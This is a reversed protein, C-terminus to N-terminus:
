SGKSLFANESITVSRVEGSLIKDNLINLNFFNFTTNNQIMINIDASKDNSLNEYDYSIVQFVQSHKYESFTILEYNLAKSLKYITELTLNEQGKVIKSIQQPTVNVISALKVQNLEEKDEIVALVRRAIKSSYEKLWPNNKRFQAKERWNSKKSSIVAGIKEKLNNM